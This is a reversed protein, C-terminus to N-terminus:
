IKKLMTGINLRAKKIAEEIITEVEKETIGEFKAIEEVDFGHPFDEL